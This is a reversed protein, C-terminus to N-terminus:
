LFATSRRMGSHARGILSNERSTECSASPFALLVQEHTAGWKLDRLGEPASQGFVPFSTAMIVLSLLISRALKM